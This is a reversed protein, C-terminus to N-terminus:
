IGSLEHDEEKQFKEFRDLVEGLIEQNHTLSFRLYKKGASGFGVGPAVAVRTKELLKTAFAQSDQNNPVKAWVFFTGAPAEVEWGIKKLGTVFFDRRTLYTQRIKEKSDQSATLAAVAADQVAGFLTSHVHSLYLNLQKLVTPNGVAFGVRWGAMSYTKSLTYLEVCEKAAPRSLLSIPAEEFGLSAYAFDNVLLLQNKEAFAIAEDFFEATAVAGTPNNPYNLLLVKAQALIETPVAALDPLFNNEQTLPLQFIKGQALEVATHYEPYCPNTTILYDGPNLSIQPLGNIGVVSGHFIALQQRNLSVGYERQYFDQIGQRLNEKGSFPSYQHNEPLKAAKQLAEVIHDPTPIDPNGKALNIVPEVQSAKIIEGDLRAFFNAPLQNIREAAQFTM